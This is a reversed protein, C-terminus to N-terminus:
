TIWKTCTQFAHWFGNWILSQTITESVSFLNRKV